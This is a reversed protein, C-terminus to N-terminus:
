FLFYRQALPLVRAPECTLLRGDAKVAYTEPDVEIRPMADNWLLDRKTIKRTNRVAALRKCLGLGAVTGQRLAAESVFTLSTSFKARGHAAFQPRYFTPQPTPISANPDGMNASAIMGGKLVLEPKVGFFAPKWLVLDALKGVEISGVEHSVGHSIAPNITYKAIYRLARFNDAAAHVSAALTGFQEKMKHATQWTRTIVEGVRGMAQSDSSMMSFAGLDHLLDEAAITEPRIRSEAFAVDEPIKSDLHHCVMLMDLHEGITNVTFPRTPNTSSPLV